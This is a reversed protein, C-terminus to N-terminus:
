VGRSTALAQKHEAPTEEDTSEATSKESDDSDEKAIFGERYVYPYGTIIPASRRYVRFVPTNVLDVNSGCGSWIGVLAKLLRKSRNTRYWTSDLIKYFSWSYIVLSVEPWQGHRTSRIYDIDLLATPSGNADKFIQDWRAWTAPFAEKDSRSPIIHGLTFPGMCSERAVSGRWNGYMSEYPSQGLIWRFRSLEGAGPGLRSQHGHFSDRRCLEEFEAEWTELM